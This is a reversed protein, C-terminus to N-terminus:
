GTEKFKSPSPSWQCIQTAKPATPSLLELLNSNNRTKVITNCDNELQDSSLAMYVQEVLLMESVWSCCPTEHPAQALAFILNSIPQEWGEAKPKFVEYEFLAKEGMSEQTIACLGTESGLALLFGWQCRESLSLAPEGPTLMWLLCSGAATVASLLKPLRSWKALVRQIHCSLLEKQKGILYDFDSVLSSFTGATRSSGGEKTERGGSTLCPTMCFPLVPLSPNAPLVSSERGTEILQLYSSMERSLGSPLFESHFLDAGTWATHALWSM